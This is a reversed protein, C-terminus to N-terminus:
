EQETKKAAPKRRPKRSGNQKEKPEEKPAAEAASVPAAPPQAAAAAAALRAEEAKRAEDAKRAKEAERDAKIKDNKEVLSKLYAQYEEKRAIIVFTETMRATKLLSMLKPRPMGLLCNHGNQKTFRRAFMIASLGNNDVIRLNEVDLIIDEVNYKELLIALNRKYNIVGVENFVPDHCKFLLTSGIMQHKFEM